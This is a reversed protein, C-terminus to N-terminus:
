RQSWPPAPYQIKANAVATPYITVHKGAQIQEIVMPKKENLGQSNFAITGFFTTVNLKTLAARVKEPDTSKANEIARQLALAASTGGAVHYDPENQTNFLRKYAAVYDPVTYFFQPKYKVAPTWQSPSVVYNADAGLSSVFDPTSPGVTYAFLKADVALQRAAKDIAIAEALHGSNLIMDPNASKAQSVLGSLNTTGNPYKQDFVVQFGKTPAYQEVAKTVDLSFSDDASLVAVRTPKPNLGNAMDIVGKLYVSAPSITGFVWQYGKNFISLSAGEGEAMPIQNKEAIVAATATASSGYPGLLFQAKSETILKQDLTASQDPKSGDDQFLVQVKHKVGNVNIGGQKNIWDLWIQVGQKTLGGEKADQGTAALAEGVIIDAGTKTSTAGGGGGGGCALVAVSIIPLLAFIGRKRGMTKLVMVSLM